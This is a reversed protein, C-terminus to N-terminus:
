QIRGLLTVIASPLESRIRQQILELYQVSNQTEVHSEGRVQRNLAVTETMLSEAERLRGQKEYTTALNHMAVLTDPHERGLVRQRTELMEVYLVEAKSLLGQSWYTLALTGMSLLTNRHEAGIVRKQVEIVELFLAEAEQWREQDRYTVALNHMSALTEPHEHGRVRKKLEIGETQLAEAEELRGQRRFALALNNMCTLTTPHENGLMDRSAQLAITMVAAGEKAYGAEFYVLCLYNALDPVMQAHDSDLVLLHPSLRRRFALDKSSDGWINVCLALVWATCERVVTADAATTRSWEQVLPHMSYSCSHADYDLLSFARLERTLDKLALPNWEDSPTRLSALFSFIVTQTAVQSENLPINVEYSLAETSAVEFFAEAVGERHFFSMVHLLQTARNSLQRYSIEWTAFLSLQYSDSHVSGRNRLMEARASQFIKYYEALGCQTTRMYAGSQVLALAFYGLEELLRKAISITEENDEAGSCKLLLQLADEPRMGGVRCYSEPGTAHNIVQQNRTTIIIDGHASQPFYDNLNLNPDDANDFVLLWRKRQSALWALADEPTEGEKAAVAIPVLGASITDRSTADILYTEWFEDQHLHAFNLALQTKGAGGLGALVFLHRKLPTSDSFYNNMQELIDERGTFVRSPPPCRPVRGNPQKLIQVNGGIINVSEAGVTITKAMTDMRMNIIADKLYNQTHARVEPLRALDSQDIDQMGQEANFRFYLNPTHEFRRSLEQHTKECDMAISGLTQVLKSPLFQSLRSRDPVSASRLQGSGVSLVTALPRGPFAVEVEALIHATANNCGLGGGVYRSKIKQEVISATKFMGPTAMTARVAEVITCDPGQNAAVRYTRIFTPTGARIADASMACILRGEQNLDEIMRADARGLYRAVIGGIAAELATASFADDTGLWIGLRKKVFGRNLIEVYCEIAAVIPLRLRGLLVAVLGGTGTGCILDFLDCPLPMDALNWIAQVRLMLEWVIILASLVNIGGGDFELVRVGGKSSDPLMAHSVPPLGLIRSPPHHYFPSLSSHANVVLRRRHALLGAALSNVDVSFRMGVLDFHVIKRAM